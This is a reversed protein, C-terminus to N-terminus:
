KELQRENQFELQDTMLFYILMMNGGFYIVPGTFKNICDMNWLRNFCVFYGFLFMERTIAATKTFSSVFPPICNFYIALISTSPNISIQFFILLVCISEFSYYKELFVHVCIKLAAKNLIISIHLCALHEEFFSHIFLNHQM